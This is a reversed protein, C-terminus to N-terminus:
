RPNKSHVDADEKEEITLGARVTWEETASAKDPRPRTLLFRMSRAEQVGVLEELASRDADRILAAAPRDDVLADLRRAQKRSLISDGALAGIVFLSCVAAMGWQGPTLFRGAPRAGEAAALVKPRLEMPAPRPVFAKLYDSTKREDDNM